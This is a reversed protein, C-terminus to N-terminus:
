ASFNNSKGFEDFGIVFEEFTADTGTDERYAVMSAALASLTAASIGYASGAGGTTAHDKGNVHYGCVFSLGTSVNVQDVLDNLKDQLQEATIPKIETKKSM